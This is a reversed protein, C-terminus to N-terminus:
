ANEHEEHIHVRIEGSRNFSQELEIIREIVLENWRTEPMNKDSTFFELRFFKKRAPHIECM